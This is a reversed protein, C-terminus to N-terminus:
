KNEKQLPSNLHLQEFASELHVRAKFISIDVPTSAGLFMTQKIIGPFICMRIPGSQDEGGTSHRSAQFAAAQIPFTSVFRAQELRMTIALDIANHIYEQLKEFIIDDPTERPHIPRLIRRIRRLIRGEVAPGDFMAPITKFLTKSWDWKFYVDAEEVM